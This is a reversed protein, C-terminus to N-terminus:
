NFNTRFKLGKLYKRKFISVGSKSLIYVLFFDGFLKGKLSYSLINLPTHTYVCMSKKMSDHIYNLNHVGLDWLYKM